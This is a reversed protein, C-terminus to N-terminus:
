RAHMHLKTVSAHCYVKFLLVSHVGYLIIMPQPSPTIVESGEAEAKVTEIQGAMMHVFEVETPATSPLREDGFSQFTM